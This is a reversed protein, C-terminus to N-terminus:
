GTCTDWRNDAPEINHFKRSSRPSAMLPAVKDRWKKYHETRKHAAPAEPSRYAEVLVFRTADDAQQIVDFRAIGPESLSARANERTAAIFEDVGDDFVHVEVLVILM